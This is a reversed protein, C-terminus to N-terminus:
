PGRDQRVKYRETPQRASRQQRLSCRGGTYRPDGTRSVPSDCRLDRGTRTVQTRSHPLHDQRPPSFHSAESMETPRLRASAAQVDVGLVCPDPENRRPKRIGTAPQSRILHGDHSIRSRDPPSVLGDAFSGPLPSWENKVPRCANAPLGPHLSRCPIRGFRFAVRMGDSWASQRQDPSTRSSNRRM